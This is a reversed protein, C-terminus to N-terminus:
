NKNTGFLLDMARNTFGYNVNGLTHHYRHHTPHNILKKFWSQDSVHPLFDYNSHICTTYVMGALHLVFATGLGIPVILMFAPLTAAIIFAELPHVSYSSFCTVRQSRHHVGHFRILWRTHLLRHTGYSYVNNFAVFAAIQWAAEALSAPWLGVCQVRYLLGMIGLIVCATVGNTIEQRLQGPKPDRADIEGGIGMAPWIRRTLLWGISGAALYIALHMAIAAALALPWPAHLWAGLM